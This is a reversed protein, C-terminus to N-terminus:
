NDHENSNFFSFIDIGQDECNEMVAQGVAKKLMKTWQETGSFSGIEEVMRLAASLRSIDNMVLLSEQWGGHEIHSQITENHLHMWKGLAFMGVQRLAEDGYEKYLGGITKALEPPVGVTSPDSLMGHLEDDILDKENKKANTAKRLFDDVSSFEM